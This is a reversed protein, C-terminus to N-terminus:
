PSQLSKSCIQLEEKVGPILCLTERDHPTTWKYDVHEHSLKVEPMEMLDVKFVHFIFDLAGKRCFLKVMPRVQSAVIGTEEYLERIAAAKPEENKELKGAPAGWKDGESMHSARKLLLLKGDIEVHCGAIEVQPSFRVPRSEHVEISMFAM